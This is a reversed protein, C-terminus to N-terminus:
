GSAMTLATHFARGIPARELGERGRRAILLARWAPVRREPGTRERPVNRALCERFFPLSGADAAAAVAKILELETSTSGAGGTAWVQQTLAEARRVLLPQMGPFAGEAHFYLYRSKKRSGLEKELRDLCRTFHDETARLMDASIQDHSRFSIM